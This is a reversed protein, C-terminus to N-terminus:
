GRPKVAKTKTTKVRNGETVELVTLINSALHEIKNKIKIEPAYMNCAKILADKSESGFLVNVRSRGLVTGKTEIFFTLSNNAGSRQTGWYKIATYPITVSEEVCPIHIHVGDLTFTLKYKQINAKLDLVRRSRQLIFDLIYLSLLAYLNLMAYLLLLRAGSVTDFGEFARLNWTMNLGVNTLGWLVIFYIGITRLREVYESTKIQFQQEM